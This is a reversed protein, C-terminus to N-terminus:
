WTGIANPAATSNLMMPRQVATRDPFVLKSSRGRTNRIAIRHVILRGGDLQDAENRLVRLDPDDVEVIDLHLLRDAGAHRAARAMVVVTVDLEPPTSSCAGLTRRQPARAAVHPWAFASPFLPVAPVVLIHRNRIPQIVRM